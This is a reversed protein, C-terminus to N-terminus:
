PHTKVAQLCTPLRLELQPAALKKQRMQGKAKLQLRAVKRVKRSERKKRFRLRFSV